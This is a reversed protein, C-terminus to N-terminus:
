WNKRGHCAPTCTGATTIAGNADRVPPVWNIPGNYPAIATAANAAIDVIGDNHTAAVNTTSTYGAGHCTGCRQDAAPFRSNVQSSTTTSLHLTHRRTTLTTPTVNHCSGCAPPAIPLLAAAILDIQATTLAKLLATGMATARAPVTSNITALIKAATAGGKTSTALPGHCGACYTAYLGPGDTAVVPAPLAALATAIDTVDQATLTSLMGMGGTNATIAGQIRVSTMTPGAKASSLFAGHCGTCNAEYLIEGASAGPAPAAAPLVAILAEVQATTLTSLYGMGTTASNTTVAATFRALTLGKKTSTALPGHCGACNNAYLTAGDLTPTVPTTPTQNLAVVIAQLDAASLTSLRGMGAGTSAGANSSIANQIRVFTAGLKTSTALPGHCGACNATYLAAGGTAPPSATGPIAASISQIDSTSLASLNGMGGVDTAIATLITNVSNRGIVTSNSIDGHCGSCNTRYLSAGLTEAPVPPINTGVVNLAGVTGAYVDSAAATFIVSANAKNTITITAGPGASITVDIVDLLADAGAHNANFASNLINGNAGYLSLMPALADQVATEATPIAAVTAALDVPNANFLADLDAGGAAVSVVISTLPSINAIGIDTASISYLNKGGATARLIYPATLGTTNFVFSGDSSTMGHLVQAPSSSDKLTIEGIIPGGTAAVGTISPAPGNVGVNDGGGTGGCGSLALVLMTLATAILHFLVKM